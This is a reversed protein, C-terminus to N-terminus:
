CIRSTENAAMNPIQKYYLLYPAPTSIEATMARARSVRSFCAAPWKRM